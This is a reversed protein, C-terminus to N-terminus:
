VMKTPTRRDREEIAVLLLEQVSGNAQIDLHRM